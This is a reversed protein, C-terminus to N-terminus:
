DDDDGPQLYVNGALEALYLDAGPGGALVSSAGLLRLLKRGAAVLRQHQAWRTRATASARIASLRIEAAIEALDSQIQPRSLLPAGESHRGDLHGIAHRVASTLLDRHLDLLQDAPAGASGDTIRARLAGLQDPYNM